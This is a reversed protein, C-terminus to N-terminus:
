DLKYANKLTDQSDEQAAAPLRSPNFTQVNKPTSAGVIAPLQKTILNDMATSGAKLDSASLLFRKGAPSAFLKTIGRATAMSLAPAALAAPHGMMATGTAGIGEGAILTQVLRQGNTPNENIQGARQIHRMLNAFGDLEFKDNGNFFVGTQDKIKELSQAFKAPSFVGHATAADMANQIMQSRVAAQGNTDLANYFKQARDPGAAVIKKFIQDAESTERANKVVQDKLPVYEKRYFDDAAQWKSALDTDGSKTAFAEMDKNVADKVGKLIRAGKADGAKYLRTIEDGLDSRTKQMGTFTTDAAPAMVRGAEDRGQYLRSKLTDVLKQVSNEPLGSAQAEDTAKQLADFTEPLFVRRDGAANAVEDYLANKAANTQDFKNKLGQQITTAADGEIGHQALLKEAAARAEAQQATRQAVMGSGPVSEALVATKSLGPRNAALDPALTRVGFREGLDQIVQAEPTLPAKLRGALAEVGVGLTGLGGGMAAGMKAESAKRNWFDESGQVGTEPTLAPAAVAGTATAKGINLLAQRVAQAKTLAQAAQPAASGGATMLFPVAQGLAQGGGSAQWNGRYYQDIQDIPADLANSGAAHALLQAPGTVTDVLGKAAGSLQAPVVQGLIPLRSVEREKERMHNIARDNLSPAKGPADGLRNGQADFWGPKGANGQDPGFWVGGDERQVSQKGNGLDIPKAKFGYQTPQFGDPTASPEAFLDRGGGQPAEDAFLDRPM